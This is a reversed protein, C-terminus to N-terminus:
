VIRKTPLTLHTYSVAYTKYQSNPRIVVLNFLNSSSSGGGYFHPLILWQQEMHFYRIESINSRKSVVASWLRSTDFISVFKRVKQGEGEGFFKRSPHAFHRLPNKWNWRPGFRQYVRAPDGGRSSALTQRRLYLLAASYFQMSYFRAIYGSM